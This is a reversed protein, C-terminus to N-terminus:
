RITQRKTSAVRVGLFPHEGTQRIAEDNFRTKGVFFEKEWAQWLSQDAVKGNNYVVKFEKDASLEHYFDNVIVAWHYTPDPPASSSLTGALSGPNTITSVTAVLKGIMGGVNHSGLRVHRLDCNKNPEAKPIVNPTKGLIGANELSPLRTASDVVNWNGGNVGDEVTKVIVGLPTFDKWAQFAFDWSRFNM